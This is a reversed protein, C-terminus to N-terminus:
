NGALNLKDLRMALATIKTNKLKVLQELKAVKQQLIEVTDRLEAITSDKTSMVTQLATLAVEATVLGAAGADVTAPAAAPAPAHAPVSAAHAVPAPAPAPAATAAPKAARRAPSIAPLSVPTTGRPAEVAAAAAAAVPAAAAGKTSAVPRGELVSAQAASTPSPLEGSVSGGNEAEQAEYLAMQRQVFLLVKEIAGRKHNIIDTIDDDHIVFNMRRFVKHNLTAWNAFKQAQSSSKSYNHLDVAKPFFHKVVESMLVGDAFDRAISKKPRSLPIIDIWRYVQQLQEHTLDQEAM